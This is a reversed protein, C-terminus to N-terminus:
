ATSAFEDSTHRSFTLSAATTAESSADSVLRNFKGGKGKGAAGSCRNINEISSHSSDEKLLSKEERAQGKHSRCWSISIWSRVREYIYAASIARGLGFGVVLINAAVNLVVHGAHFLSKACATTEPSAKRLHEPSIEDAEMNVVDLRQALISELVRVSYTGRPGLETIQCKVWCETQLDLVEAVEGLEFEYSVKQNSHSPSPLFDQMDCMNSRSSMTTRSLRVAPSPMTKAPNKEAASKCPAASPRRRAGARPRCKESCYTGDEWMYVTADDKIRQNCCVCSFSRLLTPMQPEACAGWRAKLSMAPKAYAGM